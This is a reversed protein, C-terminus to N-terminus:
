GIIAFPRNNHGYMAEENTTDYNETIDLMLRDQLDPEQSRLEEILQMMLIIAMVLDDKSGEKACYVGERQRVFTKLQSVLQRSRPVFINREILAAMDLARNKKIPATMRIGRLKNGTSDILYGPIRYEYEIELANLIGLGIGNCEVSYYISSRGDHDPDSQQIKYLRRIIRYLMKSQEAQDALNSNWEAVQVLSPFEMVQICADDREVGESPDLIVGYSVGPRIEEYWRCGWRDVFRPSRIDSNLALLKAPSVLTENRTLFQCEFDRKWETETYGSALVSMRFKEDRGPKATWPAHFRYFGHVTDDETTKSEIEKKLSEDEYITEYPAAEIDIERTRLTASSDYSFRSEVSNFWIQAFKDEDTNATSTIICRCNPSSSITPFISTWFEDAINPHVYAFEDLYFLNISYGRGTNGTTTEALIQSGNDFEVSMVNWGGPLKVGPKIWWPLEEYMLKLRKMIAKAADAKYSAILIKQDPHFIAWWLLFAAASETNHTPILSTGCLFLHSENDVRICRVPVSDTEEISQIYHRTDEANCTRQRSLKTQSKFVEHRTTCFHVVHYVEGNIVKHSMRSKIGLSSLLQRFSMCFDASKQYFECSGGKDCYGDTDMLGRLLELRQEISSFLYDHPIHKVPRSNNRLWLGFNYPDVLLDQEPYEIPETVSIYVPQGMRHETELIPILEETTLNETRNRYNVVWVHEADAVIEDTDFRVRYCKHNHMPDTAFTITTPKGDEGIVQDGVVLDGMAKFGHPTMIPTDLALAKGAQRSLLTVSRKHAVYHNILKRQYEYLNFLMRGETSIIWCYNEIFYIPDSPCKILLEYKQENTFQMPYNAPKLKGGHEETKFV